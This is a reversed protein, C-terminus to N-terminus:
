QRHQKKTNEPWFLDYNRGICEESSIYNGKAIRTPADQEMLDLHAAYRLCEKHHKCRSGDCHAIDHTMTKSEM